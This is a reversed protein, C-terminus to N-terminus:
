GARPIRGDMDVSAGSLESFALNLHYACPAASADPFKEAIIGVEQEPTRGERVAKDLDALTEVYFM